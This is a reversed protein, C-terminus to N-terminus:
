QVCIMWTQVGGLERPCQLQRRTHRGNRRPLWRASRTSRETFLPPRVLVRVIAAPAVPALAAGRDAPAETTM